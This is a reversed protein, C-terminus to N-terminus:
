TRVATFERLQNRLLHVSQVSFRKLAREIERNPHIWRRRRTDAGDKELRVHSPDLIRFRGPFDFVQDDAPAPSTRAQNAQSFLFLRGGVKLIRGLEAGFSPLSEPPVFDIQDWALVLDFSQDEYCLVVPEPSPPPKGPKRAPMMRPPTFEGVHVRAGKGGLYAVTDGCLPGMNLVEPKTVQFVKELVQYLGKCVLHERTGANGAPPPDAGTNSVGPRTWSFPM